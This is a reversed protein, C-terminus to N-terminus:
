VHARGIEEARRAARNSPPMKEWREDGILRRMFREAAEAPDGRTALADGGATTGPWWPFWSLPTEYVVVGAVLQPSRDALALAINGGFSHGFLLARRGALLEDLDAVQGDMDFPGPHPLSRGYGRRDYRLVQARHDLRRGLRLLGASRDMSGHVLVVLPGSGTEHSWIPGGAREITSPEPIM